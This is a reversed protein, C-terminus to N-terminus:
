GSILRSDLQITTPCKTAAENSKVRVHCLPTTSSPPLLAYSSCLLCSAFVAGPLKM